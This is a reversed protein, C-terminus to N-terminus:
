RGVKGLDYHVQDHIAVIYKRMAPSIPRRAPEEYWLSVTWYLVTMPYLLARALELKQYILGNANVFSEIGYMSATLLSWAAFGQGIALVHSKIPLGLQGAALSIAIVTECLVLSSFVQMDDTVLSWSFVKGDSIIWTTFAAFLAGVCGFIWLLRLASANWRDPQRLM